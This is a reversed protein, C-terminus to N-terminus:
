SMDREGRATGKSTESDFSKFVLVEDLQMGSLFYWRHYDRHFVMHTYVNDSAVLDTM